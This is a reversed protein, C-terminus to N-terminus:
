QEKREGAAVLVREVANDPVKHQAGNTLMVLGAFFILLLNRLALILVYPTLFAGYDMYKYPFIFQTIAGMIIFLLTYVPQWKLNLLPMTPILWILFQPSFVKNGVMFIAISLTVCGIILKATDPELGTSLYETKKTRRWLLWFFVAYMALLLVATLPFAIKALEDAIPSTINWSGFNFVGAVNPGGLIKWILVLSAYTSECQIGRQGHYIVIGIFGGPNMLFFPLNGALMTASFAIIGKILSRFQYNRLLYFGFAPAIILPYIKATVGLAVFVWCLTNKGKIFAWLTALILAAPLLDYRVVIIPGIALLLLTYVALTTMVPMKIHSAIDAILYVVALDFLLMEGAFLLAYAPNSDRILAPLYFILLALPPYESTFDRYPIDGRLIQHAVSLEMSGPGYYFLQSLPIFILVFIAIHLLIFTFVTAATPRSKVLDNYGLM